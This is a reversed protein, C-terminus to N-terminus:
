FSRAPLCAYAAVNFPSRLAMYQSFADAGASVAHGGSGPPAVGTAGSTVLPSHPGYSDSLMLWSAPTVLWGATLWRKVYQIEGTRLVDLSVQVPLGGTTSAGLEPVTTRLRQMVATPWDSLPDVIM